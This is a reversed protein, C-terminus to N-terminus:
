SIYFIRIQAAWLSNKKHRKRFMLGFDVVAVVVPVFEADVHRVDVCGFTRHDAVASDVEVVVADDHHVAATDDFDVEDVIDAM